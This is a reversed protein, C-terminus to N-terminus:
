DSDLTPPSGRREFLLLHTRLASVSDVKAYGALAASIDSPIPSGEFRPVWVRRVEPNSAVEVYDAGVLRDFEGQLHYFLPTTVWSRSTVFVRDGDEFQARMQEAAGRYDNPRPYVRFYSISWVHAVLLAIILALGAVRARSTIRVLGAALMVLLAPVSVLLARSVMVPKVWAIVFVLAFSGLGVAVMPSWFWPDSKEPHQRARLWPLRDLVVLHLAALLPVLGVLGVLLQRRYAERSLAVLVVAVGLALVLLGRPVGAEEREGPATGRFEPTRAFATLCVVAILLLAVEPAWPIDRPVRSWIDPIFLFGFGLFDQAFSATAAGGSGVDQGVYVAHALMPAGLIVCVNHLLYTRSSASTRSPRRTLTFLAQLGLVPWMLTHCYLGVVTTLVYAIEVAPRRRRSSILAFWAWTSAISLMMALEYTRAHQTWFVHHGNFALFAAATLGVATSRGVQTGLGFILLVALGGFLVSPLRLATLSTGFVKTWGLMAMFYGPPHPEANIHWTLTRFLETRIPPESIGEPLEIGPIYVEVHTMGRREIGEFGLVMSAIALVVAGVVAAVPIRIPNIPVDHGLEPPAPGRLSRVLSILGLLAVVAGLGLLGLSVLDNSDLNM